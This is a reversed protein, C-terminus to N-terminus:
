YRDFGQTFGFKGAMWGGDTFGATSYGSSSLSEALTQREPELTKPSEPGIGHTVPSLSTFLSMHSPLTGGGNYYFREFLVAETAFRDLEPSTPRSYGYASLRDARLTDISVLLLNPRDAAAPTVPADPRSTEGNCAVSLMGALILLAPAVTATLRPKM